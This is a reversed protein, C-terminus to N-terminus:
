RYDDRNREQRKTLCCGSATSLGALSDHDSSDLLGLGSRDNRTVMVPTGSREAGVDRSIAPSLCKRVKGTTSPETTFLVYPVNGPAAASANVTPSLRVGNESVV